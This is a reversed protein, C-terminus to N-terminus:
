ESREEDLSISLNPDGPPEQLSVTLRLEARWEHLHIPETPVTM